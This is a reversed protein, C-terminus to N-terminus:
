SLSTPRYHVSGSRLLNTWIRSSQDFGEGVPAFPLRLEHPTWGPRMLRPKLVISALDTHPDREGASDTSTDQIDSPQARKAVGPSAPRGRCWLRHGFLAPAHSEVLWLPRAPSTCRLLGRSSCAVSFDAYHHQQRSRGGRVSQYRFGSTLLRGIGVSNVCSYYLPRLLQFPTKSGM